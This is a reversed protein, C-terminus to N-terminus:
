PTWFQVRLETKRKLRTKDEGDVSRLEEMCRSLDQWNDEWARFETDEDANRQRKWPERRQM